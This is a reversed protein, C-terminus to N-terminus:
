STYMLTLTILRILTVPDTGMGPLNTRVELGEPDRIQTLKTLLTINMNTTSLVEVSCMYIRTARTKKQPLCSPTTLPTGIM